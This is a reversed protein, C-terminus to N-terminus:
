VLMVRGKFRHCVFACIGWFMTNHVEGQGTWGPAGGAGRGWQWERGGGRWGGPLVAVAQLRLTIHDCFILKSFPM